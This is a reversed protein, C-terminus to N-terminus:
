QVPSMAATTKLVNLLTETPGGKTCYAVAGASLMAKAMDDREHMSLGIIRVEPAERSLMSAVQVGNLKPMSVDVILIDPRLQRALEVAEEGDGAQGVVNVYPEQSILAVLGERFLKHDDAVLVRVPPVNSIDIPSAHEPRVVPPLHANRLTVPISLEIETGQGPRSRVTALGGLLTLRERISFLGFSGDLSRQQAISNPDFGKGQDAVIVGLLGEYLMRMTITAEKVGAHKVVNFLLERVCEFMVLRVRENDPECDPEINMTVTLGHDTLMKRALWEFAAQLGADHLVPPSLETALSRSERIAEDLLSEIQQFSEVSREESSRRRMIGVKLKAASVLQQFHDHLVQALRKRERTETEALDLALDRLQDARMQSELTREVVRRELSENLQRLEIQTRHMQKEADKLASLDVLFAIGRDHEGEVLDAASVMLPLLSGDRRRMEKEIPGCRGNKRLQDMAQADAEAWEPPTQKRWDFGETQFQAPTFGMMKLFAQNPHFIRGDLDYFVIGILSSEFVRRFQQESSRRDDIDLNTGFWRVIKGASDRLPIARTEFWRYVGDHRRLRFETSFDAGTEVTQRWAQMAAERDDPHICQAWQYGLQQESPIGTYLGWRDSLFDCLGTPLCTWTLLPLGQILQRYHAESQALATQARRRDSIDVASPILHTIRGDDDRMPAIMFDITLLGGNAVQVDCDFRLVEGEAAERVADRIRAQLATSHTWWYCDWFKKGVVDEAQLNAAKLPADNASVMTGDVSLVGVFTFLNNLVRRLHRESDVLVNEAQRKETIDTMVGVWERISGDSDMLPVARALMDRYEGDARRVRQDIEYGQGNALAALWTEHVHHRDDPHVAELWGTGQAEEVTQGTYQAWQVLNAPHNPDSPVTWVVAHSAEALLRYRSESLEVRNIEERIRTLDRWQIVVADGVRKALVDYTGVTGYAPRTIEEEMPDGTQYVRILKDMTGNTISHPALVGIRSGVMQERSLGTPAHTKAGAENIFRIIFDVVRGSSDRYPEFIALPDGVADVAINVNAVLQEATHRATALSAESEFYAKHSARARRGMAVIMASLLLFLLFELKDPLLEIGFGDPALFFYDQGIACIVVSYIAVRMTFFYTCITIAILTCQFATHIELPQDIFHQLALAGASIATAMVVATIGKTRVLTDPM